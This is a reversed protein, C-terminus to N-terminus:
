ALRCSHPLRHHSRSSNLDFLFRFDILIAAALNPNFELFLGLIVGLQRLLQVSRPVHNCRVALYEVPERIASM